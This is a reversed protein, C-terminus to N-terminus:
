AYCEIWAVVTAAPASDVKQVNVVGLTIDGPKASGPALCSPSGTKWGGSPTARWPTIAANLRFRQSTGTKPRFTIETQSGPAPSVSTVTGVVTRPSATTHPLLYGVVAGLAILGGSVIWSRGQKKLNAMAM